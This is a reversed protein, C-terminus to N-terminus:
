NRKKFKDLISKHTDNKGRFDVFMKLIQTKYDALHNSIENNYVESNNLELNEEALKLTLGDILKDFQTKVCEYLMKDVALLLTIFNLQITNLEDLLENNINQRVELTLNETKLSQLKNDIRAFFDFFENFKSEIIILKYWDLKLDNDDKSSQYKFIYWSFVLTFVAIIVTSTKEIIEFTSINDPFFDLSM